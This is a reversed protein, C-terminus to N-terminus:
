RRRCKLRWAALACGPVLVSGITTNHEDTQTTIIVISISIPFMSSIM